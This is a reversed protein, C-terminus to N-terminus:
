KFRKAMSKLKSDTAEYSKGAAESLFRAMNDIVEYNRDGYNNIIGNFRNRFSDASMSNWSGFFQKMSNDLKNIESQMSMNYSKIKQSSLILKETNVKISM